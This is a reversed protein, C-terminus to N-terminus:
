KALLWDNRMAKLQAVLPYVVRHQHGLSVGEGVKEV